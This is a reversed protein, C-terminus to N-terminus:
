NDVLGVASARCKILFPWIHVLGFVLNDLELFLGFPVDSNGCKGLGALGVIGFALGYVLVAMGVVVMCCLMLAGQFSVMYDLVFSGGFSVIMMGMVLSGLVLSGRFTAVQVLIGGDFVFPCEVVFVGADLGGRCFM